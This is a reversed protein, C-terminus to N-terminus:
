MKEVEGSGWQREEERDEEVKIEGVERAAM